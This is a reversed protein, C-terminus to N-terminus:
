AKQNELILTDIEETNQEYYHRVSVLDSLTLSPYMKLLKTDSLGMNYWEIMSWVPIRTRVICATGGCIGKTKVIGPFVKTTQWTRLTTSSPFSAM